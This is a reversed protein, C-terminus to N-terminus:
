PQVTRAPGPRPGPGAGPGAGAALRSRASLALAMPAAFAPLLVSVLIWATSEPLGTLVLDGEATPLLLLGLVLGRGLAVSLLVAAPGPRRGPRAAAAVALDTALVLALALAVGWPLLVGLVDHRALHVGTGLLGTLAGLLLCALLEAWM